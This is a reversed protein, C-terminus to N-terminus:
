GDQRDDDERRNQNTAARRVNGISAIKMNVTNAEKYASTAAENAQKSLKTNQKLETKMDEQNDLLQMTHAEDEVKWARERKEKFWGYIINVILTLFTIIQAAILTTSENEPTM